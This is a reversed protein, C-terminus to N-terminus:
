NQRALDEIHFKVSKQAMWLREHRSYTKSSASKSSDKKLRVLFESGHLQKEEIVLSKIIGITRADRILLDFSFHNFRSVHADIYEDCQNELTDLFNNEPQGSFIVDNINYNLENISEGKSLTAHYANQDFIAGPSPKNCDRLFSDIAQGSTTLPLFCDFCRSAVPIAMILFGGEQLLAESDSLFRLPNPQHEFNHSSIIYQLSGNPKSILTIDQESYKQVSAFLSEKYIVDVEEIKSCDVGADNKYKEKLLDSDYIDLTLTRWGNRKPCIPSHLPGIELGVCSKNIAEHFFNLRDM